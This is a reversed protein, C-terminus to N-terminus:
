ESKLIQEINQKGYLIRLITLEKINPYVIYFIVFNDIPVRHTNQSKWPEWEVLAYKEPMFDLSCIKEQIREIQRKATEPAQLQFAIYAYINRLDNLAKSSYHIHFIQSM